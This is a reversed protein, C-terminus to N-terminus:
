SELVETSVQPFLFVFGAEPFWEYTPNGNFADLQNFFGNAFLVLFNQNGDSDNIPEHMLILWLLGLAKIEADSINLRLLPSLEAPPTVGGRKIAEKRINETTRESDSFEEGKIVGPYYTIGKTVSVNFEKTKLIQEAYSGITLGKKKLDSILQVNIHGDSTISPLSIFSKPKKIELLYASIAKGIVNEKIIESMIESPNFGMKKMATESQKWIEFLQGPTMSVNKM